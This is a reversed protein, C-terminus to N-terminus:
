RWTPIWCRVADRYRDYDASLRAALDAEEVPRIVLDWGVAGALAIAVVTWSGLWLGVSATQVAGAVAM